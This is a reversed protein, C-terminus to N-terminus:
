NQPQQRHIVDGMNPNIHAPVKLWEATFHPDQFIKLFNMFNIFSEFKFIEDWMELYFYGLNPCDICAGMCGKEGRYQGFKVNTAKGTGSSEAVLRFRMHWM